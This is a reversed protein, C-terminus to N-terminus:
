AWDKEPFENIDFEPETDDGPGSEGAELDRRRDFDAQAKHFDKQAYRKM